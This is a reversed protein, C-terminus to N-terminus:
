QYITYECLKWRHDSEKLVIKYKIEEQYESETGAMHWNVTAKATIQNRGYYIDDIHCVKLDLVKDLETPFQKLERFTKIDSSLIPETAIQQLEQIWFEMDVDDEYVQNWLVARKKLLSEILHKEHEWQQIGSESASLRDANAFYGSGYLAIAAGILFFLLTKKM